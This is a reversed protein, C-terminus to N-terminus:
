YGVSFWNLYQGTQTNFGFWGTRVSNITKLYTTCVIARNVGNNDNNYAHGLFSVFTTYTIPFVIDVPAHDSVRKNNAYNGFCFILNNSIDSQFGLIFDQEQEM